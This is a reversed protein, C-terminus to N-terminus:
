YGPQVENWFWRSPQYADYIGLQNM